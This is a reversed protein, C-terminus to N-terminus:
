RQRLLPHTGRQRQWCWPRRWRGPPQQPSPRALPLRRALVSGARMRRGCQVGTQPSCCAHSLLGLLLASLPPPRCDCACRVRLGEWAGQGGCAAQRRARVSVASCWGWTGGPLSYNFRISATGGQGADVEFAWGSAGFRGSASAGGPAVAGAGADCGAIQPALSFAAGPAGTSNVVLATM